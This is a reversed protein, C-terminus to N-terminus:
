DRIVIKHTSILQSDEVVRIFYIGAPLNDRSLGITSGAELTIPSIQKVQQGYVNYFTLKANKLRNSSQFTALSSFPNPFVATENSLGATGNISAVGVNNYRVVAIDVSTSGFSHGTVVIKGDAQIAVGNAQDFGTVGIATTVKGDTDFSNDLSGNTNYRALALLQNTSTEAVGTVVIKGDAQIALSRGEDLSTLIDTTVKGDTDFSNDLSGNTNYRVLAFDRGAGIIHAGSVVIKGDNQIAVCGAFADSTGIATTVKGDTDFTNDLSGNTNYRVLAFNGITGIESSGVLLIKGDTQIALSRAQDHTGGISTTVIGDTDFTADLSGNTNYRALVFETNSGNFTYGGVVIKGDTQIAVDEIYDGDPGISTIVIGDTDFSLDLSGNANYRVLAFDHITGILAAGATVIKGDAQIAVAAAGEDGSGVATTVKGDTDFTNDLSGNANYRLVAFKSITGDGSAGAVVIKGDPQIALSSGISIGPGFSTTVKGDTDFSLDLSGAQGFSNYPLVFVTCFLLAAIPTLKNKM